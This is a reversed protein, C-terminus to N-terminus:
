RSNKKLIFSVNKKKFLKIFPLLFKYLYFLIKWSLYNTNRDFFGYEIKKEISINNKKFISEIKYQNELYFIKWFNLVVYGNTSTLSIIKRLFNFSKQPNDVRNLSDVELCLIIDFKQNLKLNNFDVKKIKCKPYTKKVKKIKIDDIDLGLYEKKKFHNYFLAEGCGVDLIRKLNKKLNLLKIDKFIENYFYTKSPNPM